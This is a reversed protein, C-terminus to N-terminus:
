RVLGTVQGPTDTRVYGHPASLGMRGARSERNLGVLAVSRWIPSPLNPPELPIRVRTKAKLPGIAVVLKETTHVRLWSEVRIGRGSRRGHAQLRPCEPAAFGLIRHLSWSTFGSAATQGGSDTLGRWSLRSWPVSFGPTPPEVGERDVMKRRYNRVM